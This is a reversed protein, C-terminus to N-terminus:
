PLDALQQELPLAEPVGAAIVREVLHRARTAMVPGAERLREIEGGILVCLKRGFGKDRWFVM